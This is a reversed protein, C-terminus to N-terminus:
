ELEAALDRLLVVINDRAAGEVALRVREVGSFTASAPVMYGTRITHDFSPKSAERAFARYRVTLSAPVDMAGGPYELELLEAELAWQADDASHLVDATRLSAELAERFEQASVNVSGLDPAAAEGTVARVYVSGTWTGTDEGNSLQALERAGITMGESSASSACGALFIALSLVALASSRCFPTLRIM